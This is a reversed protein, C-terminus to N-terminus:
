KLVHEHHIISFTVEKYYESNNFKTKYGEVEANIEALQDDIPETQFNNKEYGIQSLFIKISYSLEFKLNAYRQSRFESVVSKVM